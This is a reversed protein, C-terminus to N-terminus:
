AFEWDISRRSKELKIDADWPITVLAKALAVLGPIGLGDFASQVSEKLRAELEDESLYGSRFADVIARMSLHLKGLADHDNAVEHVFQYPTM